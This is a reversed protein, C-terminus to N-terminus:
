GVWVEAPKEPWAPDALYVSRLATRYDAFAAKCEDTLSVDALQTWDTESLLSNRVLRNQDTMDVPTPELVGEVLEHTEPSVGILVSNARHAGVDDLSLFGSGIIEGTAKDKLIM